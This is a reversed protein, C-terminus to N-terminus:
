SNRYKPTSQAMKTELFEERKRKKLKRVYLNSLFTDPDAGFGIM